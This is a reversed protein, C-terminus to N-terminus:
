KIPMSTMNYALIQINITILNYLVFEATIKFDFTYIILCRCIYVYSVLVRSGCVKYFGDNFATFQEQVSKNFVYDIYLDVYEQRFFAM